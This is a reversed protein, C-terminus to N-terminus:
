SWTKGNWHLIVTKGAKANQGVAWASNASTVALGAISVGARNKITTLRWAKGTWLMLAPVIVAPEAPYTTLATLNRAGALWVTSGAAAVPGASTLDSTNDFGPFKDAFAWSKGNWRFAEAPYAFWANSPSTATVSIFMGSNPGWYCCDPDSNPDSWTKGNWHMLFGGQGTGGRYTETNLVVGAAWADTASTAVVSDLAAGDVLSASTSTLQTIATQTWTKGNWHLVMSEDLPAGGQKGVAWANSASTATVSLLRAGPPSPAAVQKWARGNWHLILDKEAPTRLYGVAWADRGSVVAVGALNTDGRVPSAVKTWARGNWHLILARTTAGKTTSSASSTPVSGVAWANSPSGAAVASLSGATTYGSGASAQRSAPSASSAQTVRTATAANAASPAAATTTITLVGISATVTTVATIVFHKATRRVM